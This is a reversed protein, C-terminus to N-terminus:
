YLTFVECLCQVRFGKVWVTCLRFRCEDWSVSYVKVCWCLMYICVWLVWTILLGTFNGTIFTVLTCFIIWHFLGLLFIVYFLRNAWTNCCCDNFYWILHWVIGEKACRVVCQASFHGCPMYVHKFFDWSWWM